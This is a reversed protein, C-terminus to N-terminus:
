KIRENELSIRLLENFKKELKLIKPLIVIQCYPKSSNKQYYNKHYDEAEYFHDLEQLQTVVSKGEKLFSENLEKIFNESEKKQNETTYLIISRYQEGIDNGQRNFTTSDHIAFFVTLLDKYKIKAPDFEIKVVEAHGTQGSCVDQYTPNKTWGGAYGPTVSIIGKLEKFIGELCWFCGGGFVAIEKKEEM